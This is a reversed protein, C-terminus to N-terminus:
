SMKGGASDYAEQLFFTSISDLSATGSAALAVFTMVIGVAIAVIMNVTLYSRSSKGRQLEPLHYFCLLFLAVSVTEVIM